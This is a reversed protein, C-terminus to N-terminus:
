EESIKILELAEEKTISECEEIDYDWRESLLNFSDTYDTGELASIMSMYKKLLKRYDMDNINKKM